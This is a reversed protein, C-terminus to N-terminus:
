RLTVALEAAARSHQAAATENPPSWSWVSTSMAAFSKALAIM